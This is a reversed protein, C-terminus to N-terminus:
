RMRGATGARRMNNHGPNARGNVDEPQESFEAPSYLPHREVCPDKGARSKANPQAKLARAAAESKQEAALAEDYLRELVSDPHGWQVTPYRKRLHPLLRKRAWAQMSALHTERCVRAVKCRRARRCQRWGCHRWLGMMRVFERVFALEANEMREFYESTTTPNTEATQMKEM